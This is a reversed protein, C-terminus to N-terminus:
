GIITDHGCYKRMESFKKILQKLVKQIMEKEEM